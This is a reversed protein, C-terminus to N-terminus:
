AVKENIVKEIKKATETRGLNRYEKLEQELSLVPIRSSGLNIFKTPHYHNIESWEGNQLRYQFNAMVEVKVGGIEYVGFYSRYKETESYESKKIQYNQLLEDILVASDIDTLIDIDNPAIAVGQLYLSTSGSLIWFVGKSEFQKALNQLVKESVMATGIEEYLIGVM